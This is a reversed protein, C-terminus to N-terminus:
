EYSVGRTFYVENKKVTFTIQGDHVMDLLSLFTVVVMYLDHCDEMSQTMTFNGNWKKIMKRLQKKRDDVTIEKQTINVEYPQELQFRKLCRQMAKILEYPSTEKFSDDVRTWENAIESVPKDHMMMRENYLNEFQASVEKFKQYEILRRVLQESEDEEYNDELEEKENPLLKKSKYEILTALEVMYESAIDLHLQQMAHIYALYQDTLKVIDLSFLDLEGEKILHLMLDLPGDFQDINVKFDM